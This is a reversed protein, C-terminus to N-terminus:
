KSVEIYEKPENGFDDWFVWLRNCDPWKFFSKMNFYLEDADITRDYKDFEVDSIFKYEIKCLIDSYRIVSGCSCLFKPM